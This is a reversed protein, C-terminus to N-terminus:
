CTMFFSEKIGAKKSAKMGASRTWAPASLFFGSPFIGSIMLAQLVQWRGCAIPPPMPRFFGSERSQRSQWGPLRPAVSCTTSTAGGKATPPSGRAPPFIVQM